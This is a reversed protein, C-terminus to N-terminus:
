KDDGNRTKFFSMVQNFLLIVPDGNPIRNRTILLSVDHLFGVDEKTLSLNKTQKSLVLILKKLLFDNKYGPSKFVEMLQKDSSQKRHSDISQIEYLSDHRSNRVADILKLSLICGNDFQMGSVIQPSHTAIIIHANLKEPCLLSIFGMFDLQWQPHLSNEPEDICIMCNKIALGSLILANSLLTQQGSSLASVSIFRSAKQRKVDVSSVKVIGTLFLARILKDDWFGSNYSYEFGLNEAYYLVIPLASEKIKKDTYRRFLETLEGRLEYSDIRNKLAVMFRLDEDSLDSKRDSNSDDSISISILSEKNILPELIIRILGLVNEDFKLSCKLETELGFMKFAEVISDSEYERGTGKHLLSVLLCSNLIEPIGGEAKAGQGTHIYFNPDSYKTDKLRKNNYVSEPMFRDFKSNCFAIIRSPVDDSYHEVQNLIDTLRVANEIELFSNVVKAMLSSKGCANEGTIVTYYNGPLGEQDLCVPVQHQHSGNIHRLRFM